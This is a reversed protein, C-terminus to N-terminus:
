AAKGEKKPAAPPATDAAAALATAITMLEDRLAEPVDPGMALGALRGIEVAIFRARVAQSDRESEYLRRYEDAARAAREALDKGKSMRM